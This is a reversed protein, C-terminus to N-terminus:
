VIQINIQKYPIEMKEGALTNHVAPTEKAGLNFLLWDLLEERTCQKPARINFTVQATPHVGYIESDESNVGLM